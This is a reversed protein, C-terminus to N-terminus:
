ESSLDNDIWEDFFELVTRLNKNRFICTYGSDINSQQLIYEFLPIDQYLLFMKDKYGIVVGQNLLKALIDENM